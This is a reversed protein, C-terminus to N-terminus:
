AAPRGRRDSVRAPTRVAREASLWAAYAREHFAWTAADFIGQVFDATVLTECVGDVDVDLGIGFASAELALDSLGSRPWGTIVVTPAVARFVAATRMGMVPSSARVEVRTVWGAPHFRAELGDLVGDSDSSSVLQGHLVPLRTIAGAGVQRRLSHEDINVAFLADATAGLMRAAGRLLVPEELQLHDEVRRM